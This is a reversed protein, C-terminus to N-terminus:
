AEIVLAGCEAGARAERRSAFRRADARRGNWGAGHWFEPGCPGIRALVYASASAQAGGPARRRLATLAAACDRCPCAGHRQLLALRERRLTWARSHAPAAPAPAPARGVARSVAEGRTQMTSVVRGRAVIAGVPM